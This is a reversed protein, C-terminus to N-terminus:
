RFPRTASEILTGMVSTGKTASIVARRSRGTFTSLSALTAQRASARIPAPFPRPLTIM